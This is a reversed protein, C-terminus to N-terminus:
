QTFRRTDSGDLLRMALAEGDAALLLEAKVTDGADDPAPMLGLAALTSRPLETEVVRPAPEDEIREISDLAIFVGGDDRAALLRGNAPLASGQPAKPAFALLMAAIATGALGGGLMWGRPAWALARRRKPPHHQAFAQMLATEVAPPTNLTATEARLADFMPDRPDQTDMDDTKRM